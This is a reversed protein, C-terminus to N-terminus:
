VTFEREFYFSAAGKTHGTIISLVSNGLKQPDYLETLADARLNLGAMKAAASSDVVAGGQCYIDSGSSSLVAVYLDSITDEDNTPIVSCNAELWRPEFPLGYQVNWYDIAVLDSGTEQGFQQRLGALDLKGDTMFSKVINAPNKSM